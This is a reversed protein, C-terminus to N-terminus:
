YGDPLCGMPEFEGMNEATVPPVPMIYSDDVKEGKVVKIIKDIAEFGDWCPSQFVTADIDGSEILAPTTEYLGAGILFVKGTLGAAKIAQAAGPSMVDDSAVVADVQDGFRTLLNATATQAKAQQWFGPQTGLVKIGPAIEKLTEQVGDSRGITPANGPVGEIVIINGEDGVLDKVLQAQTAGIDYDSPGTFTTYLAREEDSVASNAVNIPIGAQNAKLLMTQTTGEVAPWLVIGDVKKAILQDMQSQQTAADYKSNLITVDVNAEDAALEVQKAFAAGYPGDDQQPVLVGITLREGDGGPTAPANGACATTLFLAAVALAAGGLRAARANHTRM